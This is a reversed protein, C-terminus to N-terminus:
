LQLEEIHAAEEPGPRPVPDIGIGAVDPGRPELRLLVDEPGGREVGSVDLTRWEHDVPNGQADQLVIRVTLRELESRVPGSLRLSLTITGDPGMAWDLLTVRWRAREELVRERPDSPGCAALCVLLVLIAFLAPRLPRM